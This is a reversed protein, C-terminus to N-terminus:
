KLGARRLEQDVFKSALAAFGQSAKAHFGRGATGRIRIAQWARNALAQVAKARGGKKFRGSPGRQRAGFSAGSKRSKRTAWALLPAFPATHPKTGHEIFPAHKATSRLIWGDVHKLVRYSRRLQGTDVAPRPKASDIEAIVLAKGAQAAKFLGRRIAVQNSKVVSPIGITAFTAPTFTSRTM